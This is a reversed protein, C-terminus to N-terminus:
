RSQVGDFRSRLRYLSLVDSFIPIELSLDFSLEPDTFARELLNPHGHAWFFLEIGVWSASAVLGDEPVPVGFGAKIDEKPGYAVADSILGERQLGLVAHSLSADIEQELGLGAAFGSKPVYVATFEDRLNAVGIDFSPADLAARRMESYLLYHTRLVLSSLRAVLKTWTVGRDDRGDPTRAASFIGAWYEAMVEDECWSGEDLLLGLMRPPVTGPEKLAQGSRRAASDVINLVNRARREAYRQRLDQAMEDFLPGLLKRGAWVSATTAGTALIAHPDVNAM